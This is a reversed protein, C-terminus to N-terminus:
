IELCGTANRVSDYANCDIFSWNVGLKENVQLRRGTLERAALSNLAVHAAGCGPCDDIIAVTVNPFPSYSCAARDACAIVVCRCCWLQTELFTLFKAVLCDCFALVTTPSRYVNLIFRNILTIYHLIHKNKGEAHM